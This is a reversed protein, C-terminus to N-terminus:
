LIVSCKNLFASEGHMAAQANYCVAAAFLSHKPLIDMFNDPFNEIHVM